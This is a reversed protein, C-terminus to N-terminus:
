VHELWRLGGYIGVFPAAVCGAPHAHDMPFRRRLMM